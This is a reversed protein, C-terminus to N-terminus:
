SSYCQTEKVAYCQTEKVAGVSEGFGFILIWGSQDDHLARLTRTHYLASTGSLINSSSQQKIM